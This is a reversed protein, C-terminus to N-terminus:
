ANRFIYFFSSFLVLYKILMFQFTITGFFSEFSNKQLGQKKFEDIVQWESVALPKISNQSAFENLIKMRARIKAAYFTRTFYPMASIFDETDQYDIFNKKALTILVLASRGGVAVAEAEEDTLGLSTEVDIVFFFIKSFFTTTWKIFFSFILGFVEHGILVIIAVVTLHLTRHAGLNYAILNTIVPLGLAVLYASLLLPFLFVKFLKNAQLESLGFM